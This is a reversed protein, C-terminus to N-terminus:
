PYRSAFAAPHSLFVGRFGYGSLVVGLPQIFLIPQLFQHLMYPDDDPHGRCAVGM